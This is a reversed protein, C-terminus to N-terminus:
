EAAHKTKAPIDNADFGIDAIAHELNKHAILMSDYTIRVEQNVPDAHVSIVGGTAGFQMFANQVLQAEESGSMAPVKITVSRIDHKRCGLHGTFVIILCLLFLYFNIKFKM